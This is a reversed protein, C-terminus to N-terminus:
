RRKGNSIQVLSRINEVDLNTLQDPMLWVVNSRFQGNADRLRFSITHNRPTRHDGYAGHGGFIPEFDPLAEKILRRARGM